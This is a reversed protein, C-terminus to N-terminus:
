LSWPLACVAEASCAYICTSLHVREHMCVCLVKSLDRVNKERVGHGSEGGGEGQRQREGEWGPSTVGQTCHSVTSDGGVRQMVGRGGAPGTRDRCGPAWSTREEEEAPMFVLRPICLKGKIWENLKICMCSHKGEDKRKEYTCSNRLTWLSM